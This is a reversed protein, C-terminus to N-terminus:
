QAEYGCTLGEAHAWITLLSLGPLLIILMCENVNIRLLIQAHITQCFEYSYTAMSVM